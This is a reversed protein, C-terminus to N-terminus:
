AVAPRPIRAAAVLGNRNIQTHVDIPVDSEELQQGASRHRGLMGHSSRARISSSKASCAASGFLDTASTAM